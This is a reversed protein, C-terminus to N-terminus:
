RRNVQIQPRTNLATQTAEREEDIQSQRRCVRRSFRTGLPKEEACVLPDNEGAALIVRSTGRKEISARMVQPQEPTVACGATAFLVAALILSKM